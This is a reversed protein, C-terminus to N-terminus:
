DNGDLDRAAFVVSDFTEGNVRSYDTSYAATDGSHSNGPTERGQGVRWMRGRHHAWHNITDSLM